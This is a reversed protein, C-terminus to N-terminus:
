ELKRGSCVAPSFAQVLAAPGAPFHRLSFPEREAKNAPQQIPTRESLPSRSHIGGTPCHSRRRLRCLAVTEDVARRPLRLLLASRFRTGVAQPHRLLSLNRTKGMSIRKGARSYKESKDSLSTDPTGRRPLSPLLQPMHYHARSRKKTDTSRLIGRNM